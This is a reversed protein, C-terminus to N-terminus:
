FRVKIAINSTRFKLPKFMKKNRKIDISLAKLAILILNGHSQNKLFNMLLFAEKKM